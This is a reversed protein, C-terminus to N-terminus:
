IGWVLCETEGKEQRTTSSLMFRNASFHTSLLCSPSTTLPLTKTPPDSHNHHVGVVGTNRLYSCHSRCPDHEASPDLNVYFSKMKCILKDKRIGKKIFIDMGSVTPCEFM